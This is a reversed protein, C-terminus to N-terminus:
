ALCRSLFQSQLLVCLKVVSVLLFTTEITIHAVSVFGGGLLMFLVCMLHHAFFLQKTVIHWIMIKVILRDLIVMFSGALQLM